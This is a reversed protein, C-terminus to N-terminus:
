GVNPRRKGTHSGDLASRNRDSARSTEGEEKLEEPWNAGTRLRAYNRHGDRLYREKRSGSCKLQSVGGELVSGAEEYDHDRGLACM